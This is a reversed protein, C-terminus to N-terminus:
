YLSYKESCTQFNNPRLEIQLIKTKLQFNNNYFDSNFESLTKNHINEIIDINNSYM